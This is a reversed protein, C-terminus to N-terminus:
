YINSKKAKKKLIGVLVDGEIEFRVDEFETKDKGIRFKDLSLGKPVVTEGSTLMAPYSDNPFGEPVIGGKAFQPPGMLGKFMPAGKSTPLSAKPGGIIAALIRMALLQILVDMLQKIISKFIGQLVEQMNQGGEILADFFTSFSNTLVGVVDRTMELNKVQSAIIKFAESSGEGEESLYKLKNTLTSIHTELLQTSTSINGFAKDMDYAYQLDISNQLDVYEEKLLRIRDVANQITEDPILGGGKQREKLMDRLYKQSAQLEQNVVEIKAAVSGFADAEAYVLALADRDINDNVIKTYEKVNSILDELQQKQEETRQPLKGTIPDVMTLKEVFEDLVKNYIELKAADSDYLNGLLEKKLDVSALDSKMDTLVENTKSVVAKWKNWDEVVAKVWSNKTSLESIESIRKVIGDYLSVFDQAKEIDTGGGWEFMKEISAKGTRLDNQIDLIKQDVQAQKERKEQEVTLVKLHEQIEKRLDRYYKLNSEASTKDYNISDNYKNIKANAESIEKQLNNIYARNGMLNPDNRNKLNWVMEEKEWILQKQKLVFEKQAELIKNYKDEELQIRQDVLSQVNRLEEENLSKLTKIYKETGEVQKWVIGSIQSDLNMEPTTFTMADQMEKIEQRVERIKKTMIVIGATLAAIALGLPNLAFFAIITKLAKGLTLLKATWSVTAAEAAITSVAVGKILQSFGVLVAAVGNLTNLVFILAYGLASFILLVPGTAAVILAWMVTNKRQAETLSDFWKSVKDLTKTLWELVPILAEAIEKGLSIMSVQAASIARDYRLKITNSVAAFASGLAGTSETIEKMIESNYKMNKGSLSLVGLMARINPFVKSVLTEGYGETLENLREMLAMIGQNRLIERLDAYSTKMQGLAATAEDMAVAGQKTEKMLVNFVGRLYTAAQASTSGTLTIGAMAGAVQDISVGLNSALPTLSGMASAFGQAEAKGERVAAVLVDTAYAATLGTGRYANLVSTLYNAIDQTNGLGTAAAKASKELVDLAQAGQIGSSAIFYLGEALEQPSRGFAKAMNQIDGSWDNVVDQATGTLGVIKQMAFEYDTAMKMVTKGAIAMPATITASALYGFTRIRQSVLAMHSIAQKSFLRFPETLASTLAPSSSVAGEGIGALKAKTKDAENGVKQLMSIIINQTAQINDLKVGLTAYMSGINAM